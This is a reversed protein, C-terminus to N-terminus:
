RRYSGLGGTARGVPAMYSKNQDKPMDMSKFDNGGQPKYPMMQAQDARSGLAKEPTFKTADGQRPRAIPAPTYDMQDAPSGGLAQEPGGKM